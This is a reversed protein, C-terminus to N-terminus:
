QAFSQGNEKEKGRQNRGVPQGSIVREGKGDSERTDDSRKTPDLSRFGLSVDEVDDFSRSIKAIPYTAVNSTAVQEIRVKREEEKLRIWSDM